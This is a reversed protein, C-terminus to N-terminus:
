RIEVVDYHRMLYMELRLKLLTRGKGECLIQGRAIFVAITAM